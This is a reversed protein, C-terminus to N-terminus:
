SRYLTMLGYKTRIRTEYLWLCEVFTAETPRIHYVSSMMKRAVWHRGAPLPLGLTADFQRLNACSTAMRVQGDWTGPRTQIWLTVAAWHHWWVSQLKLRRWHDTNRTVWMRDGTRPHGYMLMRDLTYRQWQPIYQRTHFVMPIWPAFSSRMIYIIYVCFRVIFVHLLMKMELLSIIYENYLACRCRVIKMM